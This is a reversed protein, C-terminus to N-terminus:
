SRAMLDSTIAALSYTGLRESLIQARVRERDHTNAEKAPSVERMYRELANNLTMREASARDVYVGRVMEDEVRRAWDPADRKTRFTKVTTPWGTKRIVAKWTGSDTKVLTAM